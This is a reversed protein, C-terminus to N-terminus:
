RQRWTLEAVVPAHDSNTTPGLEFGVATFADSLMVHDIAIRLPAPRRMHWTAPAHGHVAESANTLGLLRLRRLFASRPSANFDGAVVAPLREGRIWDLLEQRHRWAGAYHVYPFPKRPHIGFLAFARGRWRLPVRIQSLFRGLHRVEHKGAPALRSWVALRLGEFYYGPHTTLAALWRHPYDGAFWSELREAWASTFEPLVLVDADIRRLSEEMLPDEDNDHNLNVTAVRLVPGLEPLRAALPWSRGWLEPILIVLAVPALAAAPWWLRRVLVAVAVFAALMGGPLWLAAVTESAFGIPGRLGPDEGGLLPGVLGLLGACWALVVLVWAAAHELRRIMETLRRRPSLRTM